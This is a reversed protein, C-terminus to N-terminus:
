LPPEPWGIAHPGVRGDLRWGRGRRQNALLRRRARLLRRPLAFFKRVNDLCIHERSSEPRFRGYTIAMQAVLCCVPNVTHPDPRVKMPQLGATPQHEAMHGDLEVPARDPVAVAIDQEM